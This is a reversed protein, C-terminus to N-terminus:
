IKPLIVNFTTGKNEESKVLVHGKHREVIHKVLSLGLGTGGVQRSRAKDVRYFREFIRPLDKAPIGIGQDVIEIIIGEKHPAIRIKVLGGTHSYKIANELLNILVQEIMDQNGQFDEAGLIIEKIIRIDEKQAVPRLLNIISDLLMEANIHNKVIEMSGTELESLYLLDSILRNLRDAEANIIWLFKNSLERDELVGDLLTEVYGKISTLPTRLEHSVNAVFESRMQELKKIKTINRLVMIAGQSSENMGKIPTIYVRYYELDSPFLSVEIMQRKGDVLCKNLLDAMQYNRLIELFYRGELKEKEVELMQVATENILMLKGTADFALVGEVMSALITEMQDKSQLADKMNKNLNVAMAKMSDSLQGLEDSSNFYGETELEGKAFSLVLDNLRKILKAQNEVWYTFTFLSITFIGLIELSQLDRKFIVPLGYIFLLGVGATSIYVAVAKVTFKKMEYEDRDELDIDLEELQKM